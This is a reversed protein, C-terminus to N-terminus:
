QKQPYNICFSVVVNTVIESVLMIVTFLWACKGGKLNTSVKFANFLLAIEWVIVPIIIISFAFLLAYDSVTIENIMKYIDM